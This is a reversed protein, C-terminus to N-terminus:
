VQGSRHSCINLYKGFGRIRLREPNRAADVLGVGGARRHEGPQLSLNVRCSRQRGILPCDQHARRCPPKGGLQVGGSRL